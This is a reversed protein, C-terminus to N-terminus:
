PQQARHGHSLIADRLTPEPCASHQQVAYHQREADRLEYTWKQTALEDCLISVSRALSDLLSCAHKAKM